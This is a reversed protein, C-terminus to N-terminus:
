EDDKFVRVIISNLGLTAIIIIVCHVWDHAPLWLRQWPIVWYLATGYWPAMCVPCKFIPQSLKGILFLKKLAKQECQENYYQLAIENETKDRNEFAHASKLKAAETKCANAYNIIRKEWNDWWKDVFGFIEGPLMTYHIAFVLLSIIIIQILIV